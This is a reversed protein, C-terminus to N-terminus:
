ASPVGEEQLCGNRLRATVDPRFRRRSASVFIPGADCCIWVGVRQAGSIPFRTLPNRPGCSKTERWDQSKWAFAKTTSVFRGRRCRSRDRTEFSGTSNRRVSIGDQLRLTPIAHRGDLEPHLYPDEDIGLHRIDDALRRIDEVPNSNGRTAGEHHVLCAYPTYATRYGARWIRMCLAVDSMAILYSEDFGGVEEFASRRVMQCAGMIALWNRPHDPSGFVDWEIGGGSRYMLAALHIGISVGAHQLELSPYILKTGVVGVGPRMAFRVLEQLWDSKIIEIDNNLFLLFEGRARVAGFNCAASYNFKNRFHVIRVQPESKLQEYYALTEPEDSGTDVVIVEKNPYDTAHLLGELCMRLLEPKNKTPIVISVLPAQEIQWTAHQTGNSQTEVTVAGSVGHREWYRQIAARHDGAEITDPAPREQCAGPKRHCLVKPVRVINQALDSVRLNLDWEVATAAAVDM